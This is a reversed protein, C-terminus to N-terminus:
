PFFADPTLLNVRLIHQSPYPLEQILNQIMDRLQVIRILYDGDFKTHGFEKLDGNIFIAYGTVNTAQDLAIVVNNAQPAM